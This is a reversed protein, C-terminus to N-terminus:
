RFPMQRQGSVTITACYRDGRHRMMCLKRDRTRCPMTAEEM